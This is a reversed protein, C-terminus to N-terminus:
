WYNYFEYLALSCNDSLTYNDQEPFINAYKIGKAKAADAFTAAASKRAPVSRGTRGIMAALGDKGTYMALWKWAEEPYKTSTSIAFGSGGTTLLKVKGMPFYGIDWSFKTTKEYTIVDWQGDLNMAALHTASYDASNCPSG